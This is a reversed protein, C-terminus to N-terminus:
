SRLRCLSSRMWLFIQWSSFVLGILTTVVLRCSIFVFRMTSSISFRSRCTSALVDM